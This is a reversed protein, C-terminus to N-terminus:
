EPIPKTSEVYAFVALNKVDWLGRIALTREPSEPLTHLMNLAMDHFPKSIGQLHPPLHSYRFLSEVKKKDM